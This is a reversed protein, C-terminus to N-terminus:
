RLMAWLLLKVILYLLILALLVGIIKPIAYIFYIVAWLIVALVLYFFAILQDQIFVLNIM